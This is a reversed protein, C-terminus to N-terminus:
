KEVTTCVNNVCKCGREPCLLGEETSECDRDLGSYIFNYCGCGYVCECDEDNECYNWKKIYELKPISWITKDSTENVSVWLSEMTSYKSKRYAFTWVGNVLSYSTLEADPYLKLFEKVEETANAIAMAQEKTIQKKGEKITFENSYITKWNNVKRWDGIAYSLAVRYAGKEAQILEAGEQPYKKNYILQDWKFTHKENPNLEFPPPSPKWACDACWTDVKEWTGGSSKIETAIGFLARGMPHNVFIGESLGNHVEFVVAEGREYETKDATVTVDEKPIVAEETDKSACKGDVPKCYDAYKICSESSLKKCSSVPNSRLNAETYDLCFGMSECCRHFPNIHYCEPFHECSIGTKNYDEPWGCEPRPITVCGGSTIKHHDLANCEAATICKYASQCPPMFCVIPVEYKLLGQPCVCDPNTSGGLDCHYYGGILVAALALIGIGILIRKNKM